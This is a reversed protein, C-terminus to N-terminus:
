AKVRQKRQGQANGRAFLPREQCVDGTDHIPRDISMGGVRGHQTCGAHESSGAGRGSFSLGCRAIAPLDCVHGSGDDM